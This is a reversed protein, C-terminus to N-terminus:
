CNVTYKANKKYINGLTFTIAIEFNLGYTYCYVEGCAATAKIHNLSAPLDNGGTHIHTHTNTQTHQFYHSTLCLFSLMNNIATIQRGDM